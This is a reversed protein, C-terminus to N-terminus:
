GREAYAIDAVGNHISRPVRTDVPQGDREPMDLPSLSCKIDAHEDAMADIDDSNEAAFILGNKVMDDNQHQEMWARWFDAPVVNETIAAGELMRPAKWFKKPAVGSPYSTGRIVYVPGTKFFRKVKRPGTQTDEDLMEMRCLQLEFRAVAIKCAITVYQVSKSEARIAPAAPQSTAPSRRSM